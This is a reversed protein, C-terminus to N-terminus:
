PNAIIYTVIVIQAILYSCIIIVYWPIVLRKYAFSISFVYIAFAAIFLYSLLIIASLFQLLDKSLM